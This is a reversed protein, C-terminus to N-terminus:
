YQIFYEHYHYICYDNRNLRIFGIINTYDCNRFMEWIRHCRQYETWLVLAREFRNMASVGCSRWPIGVWRFCSLGNWLENLSCFDDFSRKLPIETVPTNGERLALLAYHTEMANHRWSFSFLPSKSAPPRWQYGNLWALFNLEVPQVEKLDFACRELSFVSMKM